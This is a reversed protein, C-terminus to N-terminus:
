RYSATYGHKSLIRSIYTECLPKYVSDKERSQSIKKLTVYLLKTQRGSVSHWHWQSKFLCQHWHWQSKSTLPVSFQSLDTGSVKKLLWQDQTDSQICQNLFWFKKQNLSQVKWKENELTPNDITNTSMTIQWHFYYERMNHRRHPEIRPRKTKYDSTNDVPRRHAQTLM